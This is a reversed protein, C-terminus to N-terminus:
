MSSHSNLTFTYNLPVFNRHIQRYRALYQCIEKQRLARLIRKIAITRRNKLRFLVFCIAFIIIFFDVSLFILFLCFNFLLLLTLIFASRVLLPQPHPYFFPFVSKQFMNQAHFTYTTQIQQQLLYSLFIPSFLPKKRRTKTFSLSIKLNFLLFTGNNITFFM